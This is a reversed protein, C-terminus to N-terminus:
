TVSASKLRNVAWEYAPVPASFSAICPRKLTKGLENARAELAYVSFKKHADWELQYFHGHENALRGNLEAVTAKLHDFIHKSAFVRAPLSASITGSISSNCYLAVYGDSYLRLRYEEIVNGGIGISVGVYLHYKRILGRAGAYEWGTEDLWDTAEASGRFKKEFIKKYMDAILHDLQIILRLTSAQRHPHALKAVTREQGVTAMYTIKAFRGVIEFSSPGSIHM